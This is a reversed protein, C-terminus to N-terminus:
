FPIEETDIDITPIEGGSQAQSVPTQYSGYDADSNQDDKKDEMTSIEYLFGLQEGDFYPEAKWVSIGIKGFLPSEISGTMFTKEVGDFVKSGIWLAGIPIDRFSDGKIENGRLYINYDPANGQAEEKRKNKSLKAKFPRVGAMRFHAELWKHEQKEGQANKTMFSEQRIFGIKM